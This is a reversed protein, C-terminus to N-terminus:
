FYVRIFPQIASTYISNTDDFLVNYRVGFTMPGSRYGAGLFLATNWFDRTLTGSPQEQKQNVYLEELEASLQIQNLPNFLAIVSGGTISTKFNGNKIYSYSLGPGLAFYENFNYIASPAINFAFYNNGFNLGLGGGYQVKDWFGREISQAKLSHNSLFLCLLLAPLVHLIKM